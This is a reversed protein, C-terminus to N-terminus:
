AETVAAADREKAVEEDVPDPKPEILRRAGPARGYPLVFRDVYAAHQRYRRKREHSGSEGDDSADDREMLVARLSMSQEAAEGVAVISAVRSVHEPSAEEETLAAECKMREDASLEYLYERWFLMVLLYEENRLLPEDADRREAQGSPEAPEELSNLQLLLRYTNRLRILRRPNGFGFARTWRVFREREEPTEPMVPPASDDDESDPTDEAQEPEEDILEVESPSVVRTAISSRGTSHASERADAVAEVTAVEDRAPTQEVEEDDTVEGIDAQTEGVEGTVASFLHGRIFEDVDTPRALMVPLHVIKGLYDRAIKDASRHEDALEEYHKAVAQFAIRHDIAIVVIVQPIDMVLRVADFTQAICEHGCRDLDDVFVILRADGEEFQEATESVQGNVSLASEPRRRRYVGRLQCLREIHKKMVPVLGLHKRYDPLRLYTQLKAALPHDFIPKFQKRLYMLAGLSGVVTGAGLGHGFEISSLDPPIAIWLGVILAGLALVLGTITKIFEWQHEKWAFQVKLVFTEIPGLDGILGNIVEQALGARINDFHEYRWANFEAFYFRRFEKAGDISVRGETLRRKIQEMVSSKGVGWEGLLALTFPTAQHRSRFLSAIARVLNKRGLHDVPCPADPMSTGTGFRAVPILPPALDEDALEEADAEDPPDESVEAGAELDLDLDDSRDFSEAAAEQVAEDPPEADGAEVPAVEEEARRRPTKKRTAKKRAAKKRAAKRGTTKKKGPAKTKTPPEAEAKVETQRAMWNKIRKTAGAWDIGHGDLMRQQRKVIASLGISQMGLSWESLITRLNPPFEQQWLPQAFLARDDRAKATAQRRLFEFDERAAADAYITAARSAPRAAADARVTAARATTAATYADPATDRTGARGVLGVALRAVAAADVARADAAERAADACLFAVRHDSVDHATAVSAGATTIALDVAELHRKITARDLDGFSDPGILPQVRFACRAAYAVIAEVPLERLEAETPLGKAEPVNASEELLDSM